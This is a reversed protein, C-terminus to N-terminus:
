LIEGNYIKIYRTAADTVSVNTAASVTTTNNIATGVYGVTASCTVDQSVSGAATQTATADITLYPGTPAASLVGAVTAGTNTVVTTSVEAEVDENTLAGKTDSHTSATLPIYATPAANVTITASKSDSDEATVYGETVIVDVTVTQDALKSTNVAIYNGTPKTTTLTGIAANNNATDVKIAPAVIVNNPDSVEVSGSAIAIYKTAAANAGRVVEVDTGTSDKVAYGTTKVTPTVVTTENIANTNVAIYHSGDAPATSAPASHKAVNAGETAADKIEPTVKGGNNNVVGEIVADGMTGSVTEGNDNYMKQTQYLLDSTTATGVTTGDPVLDALAIKVNDVVGGTVYLYDGEVLVPANEVKTYDGASLGTGPVPTFQAANVPYYTTASDSVEPNNTTNVWGATKVSAAASGDVKIYKGSSPATTQATGLTIGTGTATASAKSAQIAGAKIYMEAKNQTADKGKVVTEADEPIWGATKVADVTKDILKADATATIKYGTNTATLYTDNNKLGATATLNGAEVEPELAGEKIYLTKSDSGAVNIAGSMWGPKSINLSSGDAKAAVEIPYETAATQTYTTDNTSVVITATDGSLEAEAVNIEINKDVYTDKTGLTKVRDELNLIWKGDKTTMTTAM